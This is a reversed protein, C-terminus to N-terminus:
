RNVRQETGSKNFILYEWIGKLYGLGYSFHIIVFGIVLFPMTFISGNKIAAVLSVTINVAGYVAMAIVWLEFILPSVFAWIVGSFVGLVFLMPIFQRVSAPHKLKKNVLPKFLGFQYFMRGMKLLTPRAYYTIQVDPLILIKGGSQIIRANFEDDQNRVLEEDFFGIKDFLKRHFCGFPVTDVEKVEKPNHKYNANGVGFPHAFAIAVARAQLSKNAPMTIISGGVNDANYDLLARVLKSIYDRPYEAHADLRIIVEADSRRICANLANPVVRHPNEVVRVAPNERNFDDLIERTGDTSQGDAVMVDLKDTPYDQQMVRNLVGKIYPAENRCPIIVSVDPWVTM